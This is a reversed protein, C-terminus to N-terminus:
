SGRKRPFRLEVGVGFRGHAPGVRMMMDLGEVAFAPRLVPVVLEARGVIAVSPHPVYALALGVPIALWPARVPYTGVVGHGMVHMAGAEVGACPLVDLKAPGFRPCARAGGYTTQVMAAVSREDTFRLKRPLAHAVLLDIRFRPHLLSASLSLEATAARLAGYGVAGAVGVAGRLQPRVRAPAPTPKAPEVPRPAPPTVREPRTAAALAVHLATARALTDCTRAGLERHLEGSMTQVHLDLHFDGQSGTITADVAVGAMNADPDAMAAIDAIVDERRPCVDPVSWAFAFVADGEVSPEVVTPSELLAIALWVRGV